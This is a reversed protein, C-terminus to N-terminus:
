WTAIARTPHTLMWTPHLPQITLPVSRPTAYPTAAAAYLQRTLMGPVTATTTAALNYGHGTRDPSVNGPNARLDWLAVTSADDAMLRGHGANYNALIEAPTRVTSSLRAENVAGHFWNTSAPLATWYINATWGVGSTPITNTRLAGDVYICIQNGAHHQTIAFFHWANRSPVAGYSHFGTAVSYFQTLSFRQFYLLLLPTSTQFLAETEPPQTTDAKAWFEISWNLSSTLSGTYSLQQAQLTRRLANWPMADLGDNNIRLVQHMSRPLARRWSEAATGVRVLAYENAAIARSWATLYLDADYTATVAQLPQVPSLVPAAPAAAAPDGSQHLWAAAHAQIATQRTIAGAATWAERDAATLTRWAANAQALLGQTQNRILSRHQGGPRKASLTAGGGGARFSTGAISGTVSSVIPGLQAQAM